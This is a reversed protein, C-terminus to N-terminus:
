AAEHLAEIALRVAKSQWFQLAMLLQKDMSKKDDEMAVVFQFLKNPVGEFSSTCARTFPEHSRAVQHDIIAASLAVMSTMCPAFLVANVLSRRHSTRAAGRLVLDRLANLRSSFADILRRCAELIQMMCGAAPLTQVTTLDLPPLPNSYLDNRDGLFWSSPLNHAKMKATLSDLLRQLIQIGDPISDFKDNRSPLSTTAIMRASKDLFPIPTEGMATWIWEVQDDQQSQRTSITYAFSELLQSWENVSTATEDLSKWLMNYPHFRCEYTELPVISQGFGLELLVALVLGACTDVTGDRLSEENWLSALSLEGHCMKGRVNPGLLAMFLDLCVQLVGTPLTQYLRNFAETTASPNFIERALLVQHQARQGFGDLTSYYEKLQAEKMALPVNPQNERVFECRILHELAPISLFLSLLTQGSLFALIAQHVMNVRSRLMIANPGDSIKTRLDGVRRLGDAFVKYNWPIVFAPLETVDSTATQRLCPDALLVFLLSCLCGPLEFPALFGHWVLNRINLGTPLFLIRLVQMYGQPLAQVLEPSHLVDRLIINSKHHTAYKDYLARELITVLITFTSYFHGADIVCSFIFLLEGQFVSIDIPTDQLAEDVQHALTWVCDIAHFESAVPEAIWQGVLDWNIAWPSGGDWCLKM